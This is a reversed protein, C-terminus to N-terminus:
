TRYLLYGTFTTVPPYKAPISGTALRLWVEQGYNLELLAHGTIVRDIYKNGNVNESQFALKDIGDVVLYGSVRPSSSAITYEFVYVGLYPVRFKGSAPVYSSGYNVDLNNFRIPGPTTMGYTHSAFFAVMPAYRYSGKSFDVTVSNEDVLKKSCNVGGFPHRCACIFSRKENICTGGNECPSSTCGLYEGPEIANDTNRQSRGALSTTANVTGKKAAAPKKVTQKMQKQLKTITSLADAMSKDVYWTLNSLITGTKIELVSEILEKLGRQLLPIDPQALKILQPISANVKRISASADQCLGWAEYATKNLLPINVSFRISKAELAKVRSSLTQLKLSVMQEKETSTVKGKKLSVCNNVLLKTINSEISQLRVEQDKSVVTSHLLKEELRSINQQHEVMKSSTENLIHYVQRLDPLSKKEHEEYPFNSLDQIVKSAYQHSQKDNILTQLSENLRQFQPIFALISDMKEAGCCAETKNQLVSLTDKLVYNDQISDVASNLVTMTKNLGDELDMLCENIRREFVEDRTQAESKLGDQSKVIEKVTSSLSNVVTTLNELTRSIGEVEIQQEYEATLSFPPGQEILPQLIEMDYCLDNIQENMKDMKNDLPFVVAALTKNLVHVNEETGKLKIQFDNRCKSLIDECVTHVSDRQIELTVTLNSIKIDQERLDDYLQLVMLGHKKVKEQLTLIYETVNDNVAKDVPPVNQDSMQEASLLQEHVEKMETLTKNLSEYYITSRSQEHQLDVELSKQKAQLEKIPKDCAFRMEEKMQVMDNKLELIENKTPRDEKEQAYKQQTENMQKVLEKTSELDESLSSVTKFIQAVTEQMDSQYVKFQERILDKVLENISKSKLGKLFSQVDRGKDESIKGELSSLTKSVDSMTASINDVKKQLFTLKVQQSSIQEKMKQTVAPDNPDQQNGRTEANIATNSEAQNSHILLQHQQDKPQCKEGSYGPCCKWELSTVIKHKIRYAQRTMTQSRVPCAGTTWTCPKAKGSTLTEMNDVVVTPLLRTHVYACWNKGRTTEFSSKKFDADKKTSTASYYSLRPSRNGTRQQNKVAGQQPPIKRPTSQPFSGTSNSLTGQKPNAGGRNGNGSSQTTPTSTRKEQTGPLTKLGQVEEIPAPTIKVAHEWSTSAAATQTESPTSIPTAMLNRLSHTATPPSTLDAHSPQTEGDRTMPWPKGTTASELSGSQLHSLLLLFIIEKMRHQNTLTVRHRARIGQTLTRCGGEGGGSARSESHVQVSLARGTKNGQPAEQQYDSPILEDLGLADEAPLHDM